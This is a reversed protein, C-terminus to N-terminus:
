ALSWGTIQHVFVKALKFEEFKPEGLDLDSEGPVVGKRLLESRLRGQCELFGADDM